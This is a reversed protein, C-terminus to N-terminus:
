DLLAQLDVCVRQEAPTLQSHQRLHQLRIDRLRERYVESERAWEAWTRRQVVLEQRRHEEVRAQLRDIEEVLEVIRRLM